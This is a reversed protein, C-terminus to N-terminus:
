PAHLRMCPPYSPPHYDAHSNCPLAASTQMYYTICAGHPPQVHRPCSTVATMSLRRSAECASSSSSGYHYIKSMCAHECRIQLSHLVLLQAQHRISHKSMHASADNKCMHASADNDSARTARISSQESCMTHEQYTCTLCARRACCM